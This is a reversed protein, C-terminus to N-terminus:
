EQFRVPTGVAVADAVAQAAFNTLRVCGSSQDRRIDGPEPTGHIGYHPKDIGMWVLGVPGNPGPPLMAPKADKPQDVLLDPDYRYDPDHVVTTIKWSGIPLPFRTSGTSAPFQAYVKANGDLLQLVGDSKDVVLAAAKPLRRAPQTNPVVLVTGAEMRADPNLAKILAPKSNFREGLMEGIDQYVIRKMSAKGEPTDPTPAYPGAVDDATLTYEVLVPATDRNLAEWTAADLTGSGDLGQALQFGRVARALNKGAMGDIEGSSYHARLLLVQARLVGAKGTTTGTDNAPQGSAAVAAPEETAREETAPAASPGTGWARVPQPGLVPAAPATPAPPPPEVAPAPVPAAAPAPPPTAAPSTRGMAENAADMAPSQASCAALAILLLPTAHRFPSM